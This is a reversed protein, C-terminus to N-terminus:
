RTFGLDGGDRGSFDDSHLRALDAFSEGKDLRVLLSAAKDLAEKELAAGAKVRWQIHSLRVVDRQVPLSDRYREHFERVQFQSPQPDGVFKMQLRQRLMNERVQESLRAKFQGLSMGTAQRLASELAREG